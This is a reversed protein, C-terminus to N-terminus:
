SAEPDPRSSATNSSEKLAEQNRWYISNARIMLKNDVLYRRLTAFDPHFGKLIASVEKETYHRGPEFEQALRRLVILQKKRQTPIEKLRHHTVEFTGEPLKVQEVSARQFFTNLIHKEYEDETEQAEEAGARSKLDKLLAHVGEQALRYYHSTGEQRMDVMNNNRLMTLHWSVTPEKLGLEEALEKVTYERESLLALLRFRSKDALVKLFQLIRDLEKVDIQVM